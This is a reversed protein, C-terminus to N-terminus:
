EFRIRKKSRFATPAFRSFLDMLTLPIQEIPNDIFSFVNLLASLNILSSPFTRIQNNSVHLEKLSHLLGMSKPLFILCNNQLNLVSLKQLRIIDDQIALLRNHTCIFRKLNTLKFFEDPLYTLQNFSLNLNTL